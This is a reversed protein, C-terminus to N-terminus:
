LVYYIGLLLVHFFVRLISLSTEEPGFLCSTQQQKLIQSMKLQERSGFTVEFVGFRLGSNPFLTM